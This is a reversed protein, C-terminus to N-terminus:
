TQIPFVSLLCACFGLRRCLLDRRHCAESSPVFLMGAGASGESVSLRLVGHHSTFLGPM